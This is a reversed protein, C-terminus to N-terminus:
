SYCSYPPLSCPMRYAHSAASPHSPAYAHSTHVHLISLPDPHPHDSLDARTGAHTDPTSLPPPSVHPPMTRMLAPFSPTCPLSRPPDTVGISPLSTPPLLSVRMCVFERPLPPSTAVSYFTVFWFMACYLCYCCGALCPLAANSGPFLLMDLPACGGLASCCLVLLSLLKWRSGVRCVPLRRSGALSPEACSLGRSSVWAPLLETCCLLVRLTLVVYCTVCCLVVCCPGIRYTYAGARCM